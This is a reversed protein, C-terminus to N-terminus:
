AAPSRAMLPNEKAFAQLSKATLETSRVEMITAPAAAAGRITTVFPIGLRGGLQMAAVTGFM